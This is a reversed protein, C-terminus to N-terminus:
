CAVKLCQSFGIPQPTNPGTLALVKFLEGMQSTDTLRHVARDIQAMQAPSAQKKLLESRLHIGIESLYAGQTTPGHAVAGKSSNMLATFDVHATVDALGPDKLVDHFSHDRISQLTDGVAPGVYGYDIILAMGEYASLHKSIQQIIELAQTCTETIPGSTPIFELSQEDESLRIKRPQGLVTQEIPLADFLENAVVYTSGKCHSLASEITDHWRANPVRKKQEEILVPSIEVFHVQVKNKLSAPFVRLLDHMLTGQGPGMEILHIITDDMRQWLEILCIAIMEGFMQSCEPATLFDSNKGLPNRTTYYGHEPHYLCLAMYEKVTISGKIYPKIWDIM